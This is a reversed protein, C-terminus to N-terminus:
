SDRAVLVRMSESDLYEDIEQKLKENEKKLKRIEGKLSKITEIKIKPPTYRFQKDYENDLKEKQNEDFINLVESVVSNLSGYVKFWEGCMGQHRMGLYWHFTREAERALKESDFMLIIPMTLKYPSGTQLESLRRDPEKTFGVKLPKHGRGKVTAFYVYYSM